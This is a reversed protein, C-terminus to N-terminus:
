RAQDDGHKRYHKRPKTLFSYPKPRRKKRRVDHRDPRDPVVDNAIWMLLQEGLRAATEPAFLIIPVVSQVRHLTGTFSLRHVDRDHKRAAQWMLLRILNYVLLHMAIEKRVVDPSKGRLVDMGLAIKLSRLNLEATWRDRYLARIEDAPYAVPDLLTTTVIIVRTRFGKKPCDIRILRVRLTEAVQQFAERDVGCSPWWYAPKTWTVLWDKRGLRQAHNFDVKRRQHLRFVCFVGRDLLRAIDVYAGYARDAIVIDGPKFHDWLRRFLTLEHPTLTDIELGIVAGTAWCFATVLQAVPFGCGPKQTPPQPFAKQLKRTDPMSVSSGDVLRLDHGRWQGEPGVADRVKDGVHNLIGTVAAIPLRIRGQCYATPDASPLRTEGRAALQTLLTAVAARLTKAGSLVQLMFTLLTTSPDWFSARWTHGGERCHAEITERDLCDVLTPDTLLDNKVRRKWHALNAM